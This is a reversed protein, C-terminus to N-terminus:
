PEIRKNIQEILKLAEKGYKSNPDARFAENYYISAAKWKKKSEYFKAIEFAGRSQETKLEDIKKQSEAVRQDDPFLTAFDTFSSIAQLSANQDYEASKSQMLNAAGAKYLADASVRENDSYKDAAHEYAKAAAPYNKQRERAAGINLQAQPAVDSYPADKIIKEYMEVTKDQSPPIPVYGWLKRWKGALFKNAIVFQRQLVEQANTMKPYKEMVKQYHKFAIEDKGQAEYCRGVLYQAEPAYDSFPWRAVLRKAAKAALSFKKQGFAEQAVQLQDKARLKQWGKDEGPKEYIWGLEPDYILPAPSRYPLAAVILVVAFWLAFRQNM